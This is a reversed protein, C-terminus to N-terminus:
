QYESIRGFFKTYEDKNLAAFCAQYAPNELLHKIIKVIDDNVQKDTYDEKQFSKKFNEMIKPFNKNNEGFVIQYDPGQILKTLVVNM